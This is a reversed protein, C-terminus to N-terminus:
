GLLIDVFHGIQHTAEYDNGVQPLQMTLAKSIGKPTIDEITVGMNYHSIIAGLLGKNPGIVPKRFHAAYGIVGSSQSTNSYPILLADCSYCLSNILEYPCFGEYVKIRVKDKLQSVVKDFSRKILPDIKGAFAFIKNDLQSKDMLSLAELIRLTGKRESLGGFHLYVHDQEKAGIEERINRLKQDNIIPVPDPLYHFIHTNYLNNFLNASRKDNLVFLKEFKRQKSLLLYVMKHAGLNKRSLVSKDYLFVRYIIGRIKVGRMIPLFLFPILNMLMILIVRDPKEQRVYKRLLRYQKWKSKIGGGNLAKEIEIQPMLIFKVNSLNEWYLTNKNKEFLSPVVFIFMDDTKKAAGEYIHHIYELRHGALRTEFVLSTM